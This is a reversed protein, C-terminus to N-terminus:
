YRSSLDNKFKVSLESAIVKALTTKGLGPPGFLLIHDLSEGRLKCADVYLKIKNKIEDQGLYQSFSLPEFSVVKDEVTESLDLLEMSVDM